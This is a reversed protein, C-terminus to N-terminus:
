FRSINPEHITAASSSPLRDPPDPRFVQSCDIVHDADLSSVLEAPRILRVGCIDVSLSYREREM